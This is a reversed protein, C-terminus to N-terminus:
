KEGKRPRPSHRSEIQRKIWEDLTSARFRWFRGIQVAPIEGNRAMREITKPHMAILSAAQTCTILPECLQNAGVEHTFTRSEM